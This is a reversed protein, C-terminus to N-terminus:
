AAYDLLLSAAQPVFGEVALETLLGAADIQQPRFEVLKRGRFITAFGM